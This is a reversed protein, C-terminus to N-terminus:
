SNLSGTQYGNLDVTIHKYGLKRLYHSIKKRVALLKKFEQSNIEIRAIPYHDRVRVRTFRLWKLYEEAKEIRRLRQNTISEGYPIRSALCATSPKNWSPLKLRRAVNRIDEKKFGAEILPSKIGLYKVAKIGPRHDRLDSKNTAEIVVYGHKKAIQKLRTLLLFKCHYCRSALNNRVEKKQLPAADIIIHKVGLRRAIQKAETIEKRPQLPSVATAAIVNEDLIDKAVRLLFSSDM